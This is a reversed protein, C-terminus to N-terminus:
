AIAIIKLTILSYDLRLFPRGRRAMPRSRLSGRLFVCFKKPLNKWPYPIARHEGQPVQMLLIVCLICDAKILTIMQQPYYSQNSRLNPRRPISRSKRLNKNTSSSSRCVSTRRVPRLLKVGSHSVAFFLDAAMQKSGACRPRRGAPAPRIQTNLNGNKM